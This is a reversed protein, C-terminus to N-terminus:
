LNKLCSSKLSVGGSQSEVWRGKQTPGGDGQQGAMPCWSQRRRAGAGAAASSLGLNPDAWQAPSERPSVTPQSVLSTYLRTTGLYIARNEICKPDPIQGVEM